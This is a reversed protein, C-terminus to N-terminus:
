HPASASRRRQFLFLLGLGGLLSSSPEPVATINLTWSQLTSTEGASLDAVFLTWSGNGNLGNFSSLMATRADTDFALLPDTTRGDPQFSGTVIGPSMQIATHIDAAALDSLNITM